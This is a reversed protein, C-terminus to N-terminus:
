NPLTYIYKKPRLSPNTYSEFQEYNEVTRLIAFCKPVASFVYGFDVTVFLSSFANFFPLQRDSLRKNPLM